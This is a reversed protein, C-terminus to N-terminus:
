GALRKAILRLGQQLDAGVPIAGATLVKDRYRVSTRGGLFVPIDVAAVVGPLEELWLEPPPDISSSLVLTEPCTRKVVVPLEKMPVNAGLSIIRFGREHAALAFLLLGIEHHEGPLCACLMLPGSTNRSRHHFRAGLKNRMYALFFHEEAIGSAEVRWREGLERLLPVLLQQTMTEVPYLALIENYIVELRSEDFRSIASLMQQVYRQWAGSAPGANSNAQEQKDILSRVHGISVGRDLLATIRHIREVDAGSYLRHGKDTRHPSILAYRREWARLTIANIGTLTSVTRIPYLEQPDLSLPSALRPGGSDAGPSRAFETAIPTANM